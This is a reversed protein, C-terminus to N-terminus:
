RGHICFMVVTKVIFVLMASIMTYFIKNTSSKVDKIDAKLETRLAKIEAKVDKIDAKLEDKVQDIKNDLGQVAVNLADTEAVAQEEPVGGAKLDKYYQWATNTM